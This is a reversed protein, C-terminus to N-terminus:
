SEACIKKWVCQGDSIKDIFELRQAHAAQEEPGPQTVVLRPRQPALRRISGQHLGNSDHSAGLSLSAQGGTMALYVDALIEADLLAGHWQRQSNDVAYRKCLADLSNKQGPHLQRALILTCLVKCDVGTIPGSATESSTSSNDPAITACPEASSETLLKLENNIFAVDFAANHIILEAGQIFDVFEAVIDAFRPKDALFEDTIGHVEIAGPDIPREPQLYYQFRRQTLRRNVLEVCGIEIIRHGQAPDLGTTETDLIIQRM